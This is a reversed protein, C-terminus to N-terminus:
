DAKDILNKELTGAPEAKYGGAETDKPKFRKPRDSNKAPDLWFTKRSLDENLDKVTSLVDKRLRKRACQMYIRRLFVWLLQLSYTVIIIANFVIYAFCIGILIFGLFYRTEAAGVYNSFLLLILCLVYITAESVYHQYNIITELWQNESLAYAFMILCSALVILVGFVM